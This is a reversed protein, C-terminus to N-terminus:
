DATIPETAPAPTHVRPGEVRLDPLWHLWRPLYWNANGLLRMSAPVLVSRIITADIFVAVALGFGMQQLSVLRGSAFAAFVTVMILAAGTIIRATSQLGVAVSERNNHSQDFHERIRSLLFVHYDMSLGFLVCFLFIPIWADITPTEQFGLLDTAVGKQFVLVMIGYAAGVSLLNMIIAKVPVVISRFALMLLLFSLGLVVSFVIPTYTDIVENFDANFATVGTVYVEDATAGFQAPIWDDRLREITDYSAQADANTALPVEILTMDNSPATTVNAQGFQQPEAAMAALLGEVGAQRQADNVDGDVAIRVPSFAGVYFDEELILYATKVDSEPLTEVGAFGTKMDFYPIAAAILLGAALVVAMVPRAMVIRTVRGWFGSHLVEDSYRGNTAASQQAQARGFLRAFGRKIGEVAIGILPIITLLTLSAGLKRKFSGHRYSGFIWPTLKWEIKDGLLHLLAPVLTLTAAVAVVVALIAGIALSRFITSPVLFMGILALVVTMGSFVVAKSATGGAIGIADDKSSGHAREERYRAILFLAYDIGVALGIMSIMNSVFFSLEFVQSILAAIGTAVLIAMLALVLPIGAAILAGFVIVLIILTIPLGVIEASILDEEVITNFEENITADGVSYVEFGAGRNEEIVDIYQTAQKTVDELNGTFEVQILTTHRDASVLGAANPLGAATAQYYDFVTHVLEPKATLQATIQEVRQQFAPDDITLSESRVIVTEGLQDGRDLKEDILEMGKVSEPENTFNAETTTNMFGSAAGALVLIVVWAIIVRWPHRASRRAL